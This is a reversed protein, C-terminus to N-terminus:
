KPFEMGKGRRDRKTYNRQYIANYGINASIHTYRLGIKPSPTDPTKLPWHAQKAM